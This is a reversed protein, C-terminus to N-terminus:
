QGGEETPQHAPGYVGPAIRTYPLRRLAQSVARYATTHDGDYLHEVDRSVEAVVVRGTENMVKRIIASLGTRRATTVGPALSPAPHMKRGQYGALARRLRPLERRAADLEAELEAIRKETAALRSSLLGGTDPAQDVGQGDEM